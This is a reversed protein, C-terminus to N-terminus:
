ATGPYLWNRLLKTAFPMIPYTLVCSLIVVSIFLSLLWPLHGTVPKLALNLLVILPYVIAISLVVQKWFPPADASILCKPRSFWLELGSAKQVDTDQNILDPLKTLWRAHIDSNMWGSINEQSDFKVITIYEPSAPDNPKIFNVDLFGSFTKADNHIDRLWAEYADIKEPKVRDSFMMTIPDDARIPSEVPSNRQNFLQGNENSEPWAPQRWCWLM